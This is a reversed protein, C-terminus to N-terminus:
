AVAHEFKRQEQSTKRCSKEKSIKQTRSIQNIMKRLFSQFVLILHLMIKSTTPGNGPEWGTTVLRRRQSSERHGPYKRPPPAAMRLSRIGQSSAVRRAARRRFCCLVGVSIGGAACALDDCGGGTKGNEGPPPLPSCAPIRDM